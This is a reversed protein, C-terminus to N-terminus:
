LFRFGARFGWWLQSGLNEPHYRESHISTKTFTFLDPHSSFSTDYVRFNLTPGAFIALGKTAQFEGGIYFRNILNLAEVSGRSLQESSVEINLSSKKGLRPSTGLGYGFSWTVQDDWAPRIGAFFINYFERKGTRFALNLPMVENVSIEATHYGSKVFSLFGVPIGSISDSFNILGLQFGDVKKAYNLLGSQSGKVNNVAFNLVGAVQSGYLDEATFNMVGALQVGEVKKPSFNAIGAIQVGDVPGTTINALGALQVANVSDMNSNFLGALQVGDVKGGVQNFLGAMQVGQMDGRNINFLGGLELQHTGASYGGLLNFSYDNVVNGSFTGNTGVFPVLSFQFSSTTTDKLNKGFPDFQIPKIKQDLSHLANPKEFTKLSDVQVIKAKEEAKENGAQFQKAEVSNLSFLLTITFIKNLTYM